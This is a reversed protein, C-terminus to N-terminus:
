EITVKFQVPKNTPNRLLLILTGKEITPRAIKLLTVAVALKMTHQLLVEGNSKVEIVEIGSGGELQVNKVRFSETVDLQIPLIKNANAIHDIIFM